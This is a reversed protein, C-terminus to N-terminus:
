KMAPEVIEFLSDGAARGDDRPGHLLIVARNSGCQERFVDGDLQDVREDNPLVSRAGSLAGHRDAISVTHGHKTQCSFRPPELRQM